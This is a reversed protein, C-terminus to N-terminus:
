QFSSERFSEVLAIFEEPKEEFPDHGLNAMEQVPLGFDTFFKRSFSPPIVRDSGGLIIMVKTNPLDIVRQLLTRDSQLDEKDFASIQARTFELLGREWGQGVSPWQFRLVDSDRLKSKDGWVVEM